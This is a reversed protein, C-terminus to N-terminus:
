IHIGTGTISFTYYAYQTSDVSYGPAISTTGTYFTDDKAPKWYMIVGKVNSDSQKQYAKASKMFSTYVSDVYNVLRNGFMTGERSDLYMQTGFGMQIRCGSKMTNYCITRQTTSSFKLWNCTYMAVYAHHFSTSGNSAEFSDITSNHSSHNTNSSSSARMHATRYSGKVVGHGAYIFLDVTSANYFRSPYAASDFYAFSQTVVGGPMKNIINQLLTKGARNGYSCNGYDNIGLGGITTIGPAANVPFISTLFLVILIYVFLYKKM